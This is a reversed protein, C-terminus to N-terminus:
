RSPVTPPRFITTTSPGTWPPQTTTPPVTPQLTVGDCTNLSCVSEDNVCRYFCKHFHPELSRCRGVTPEGALCMIFQNCNFVVPFITGDPEHACVNRPLGELKDVDDRLTFSSAAWVFITLIVLVKM